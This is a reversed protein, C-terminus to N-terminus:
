FNLELRLGNNQNSIYYVSAHLRENHIRSTIYADFASVFHNVIVLTLFRSATRLRNNFNKAKQAGLFWDHPMGAPGWQVDKPLVNFDKWGPAFQYYKSMLEYYQQSGLNPLNHSFADGSTGNYYTQRELARIAAINVRNWDSRTDASSTGLQYGPKALSNYSIPDNPFYANHYNVLFRAYKVVSWNHDAFNHYRQTMVDGEHRYVFHFVLATAEVSLFIGAKIWQGNAAQGLGPVVASSLFALGPKQEVTKLLGQKISRKTNITNNGFTYMQFPVIDRYSIKGTSEKRMPLHTAGFYEQCMAPSYGALVFLLLLLTRYMRSTM